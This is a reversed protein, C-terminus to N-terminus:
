EFFTAFLTLRNALTVKFLRFSTDFSSDSILCLCNQMDHKSSKDAMRHKTSAKRVSKCALKHIYERRLLRLQRKAAWIRVRKQVKIIDSEKLPEMSCCQGM